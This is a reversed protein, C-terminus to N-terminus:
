EAMATSSQDTPAVISPFSTKKIEFKSKQPFLIRSDSTILGGNIPKAISSYLRREIRVIIDSCQDQLKLIQDAEGYLKEPHGAFNGTYSGVKFDFGYGGKVYLQRLGQGSVEGWAQLESNSLSKTIIIGQHFKSVMRLGSIPHLYLVESADFEIKYPLKNWKGDGSSEYLAGVYEGKDNKEIMVKNYKNKTVPKTVEFTCLSFRGSRWEEPSINFGLLKLFERDPVKDTKIKRAQNEDVVTIDGYVMPSLVLTMIMFLNKM